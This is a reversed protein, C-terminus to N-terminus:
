YFLYKIIPENDKFLTTLEGKMNIYKHIITLLINLDSEESDPNYRIFVCPQGLKGMIDYMRKMECKYNKHKFEDVEVIVQYNDCEIRFDPYLHTDTYLSGVSKNYIIERNLHELLYNHVIKEKTKERKIRNDVTNCYECLKDDIRKHYECKDCKYCQPCGYNEDLHETPLINFPGHEACVLKIETYKDKYSLTTYDYLDKYKKQCKQIFQERENTNNINKDVEIDIDKNLIKIYVKLELLENQQKKIIIDQEEIYKKYEDCRAEMEIYKKYLEKCNIDKLCLSNSDLHRIYNGKKKYETKCIDCKHIIM